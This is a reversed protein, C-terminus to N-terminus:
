KEPPADVLEMTMRAEEPVPASGGRGTLEMTMRAEEPVPASGGGKQAKVPM